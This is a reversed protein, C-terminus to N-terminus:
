PWKGKRKWSVMELQSSVIRLDNEGGGGRDSKKWKTRKAFNAFRLSPRGKESRGEFRHEERAKCGTVKQAHASERERERLKKSFGYFKNPQNQEVRICYWIKGKKFVKAAM